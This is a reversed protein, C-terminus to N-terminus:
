LFLHYQYQHFLGGTVRAFVVLVITIMALTVVTSPNPFGVGRKPFHSFEPRGIWPQCQKRTRRPVRQYVLLKSNFIAMSITSKGM